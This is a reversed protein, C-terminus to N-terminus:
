QYTELPPNNPLAIYHFAKTNPKGDVVSPEYLNGLAIFTFAAGNRYEGGEPVNAGFSYLKIIPLPIALGPDSALVTFSDTTFDVDSIQALETKGGLPVETEGDGVLPKFNGGETGGDAQRIFGPIIPHEGAAEALIAAAAPSAHIFQAGVKDDDITTARDLEYVTAKLNGNGADGPTFDEGCLEPSVTSDGACGTLILIFSKDKTFTKAPIAPLKWYDKGAELPGGADVTGNILAACSPGPGSEPKVIGRVFLSQANMLYPVIVLDTLDAGTGQVNGGTGIFLGAFPADESSPRDPLPPLPAISTAEESPGVGYCVRLAGSENSPGFDTAANVLQLRANSGADPTETSSDDAADVETGGDDAGSDPTPSPTANDDDSCAVLFTAFSACVLTLSAFGFRLWGINRM